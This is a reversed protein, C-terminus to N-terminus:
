YISYRKSAEADELTWEIWPKNWFGSKPMADGPGSKNLTSSDPTALTKAAFQCKHHIVQATNIKPKSFLTTVLKTTNRFM